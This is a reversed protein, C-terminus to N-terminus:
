RARCPGDNRRWYTGTEHNSGVVHEHANIGVASTGYADEVLVAGAEGCANWILARDDDGSGTGTGVVIGHVNVATATTVQDSRSPLIRFQRNAPTWVFPRDRRSARGEFSGDYGTSGVVVGHDNIDTARTQNDGTPHGLDTLAPDDHRWLFARDHAGYSYGVVDGAANIGNAGSAADGPLTGLDRMRGGDVAPDAVFAHDGYRDDTSSGVVVGSDNLATPRSFYGGLSGLFRYTNTTSTWVYTQEPAGYFFATGTVQGRRNIDVATAWTSGPPRLLRVTRNGVYFIAATRRYDQGDPTLVVGAIRDTASIPNGSSSAYFAQGTVSVLPTTRYGYPLPVPTPATPAAGAPLPGVAASTLVLAVAALLVARRPRGSPRSWPTM